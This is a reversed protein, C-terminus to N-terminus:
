IQGAVLDIGDRRLIWARETAGEVILLAPYSLRTRRQIACVIQDDINDMILRM